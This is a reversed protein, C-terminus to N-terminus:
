RCQRKPRDLASPCAPVLISSLQPSRSSRLDKWRPKILARPPGVAAVPEVRDRLAGTHHEPMRPPLNKRAKSHWAIAFTPPPRREHAIPAASSDDAWKAEM